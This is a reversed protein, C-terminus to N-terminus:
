ALGHGKRFSCESKAENTTQFRIEGLSEVNVPASEEQPRELQRTQTLTAAPTGRAGRPKQARPPHGRPTHGLAGAVAHNPPPLEWIGRGGTHQNDRGEEGGVHVKQYSYETSM